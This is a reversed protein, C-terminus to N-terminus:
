KRKEPDKHYRQAWKLLGPYNRQKLTQQSAVKIEAASSIGKAMYGLMNVPELCQSVPSRQPAMRRGM